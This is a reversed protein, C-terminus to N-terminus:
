VPTKAVVANIASELSRCLKHPLVSHRREPVWAARYREGSESVYGVTVTRGDPLVRAVRTTHADYRFTSGYRDTVTIFRGMM